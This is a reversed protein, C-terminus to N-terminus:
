ILKVSKNLKLDRSDLQNNHINVEVLNNLNEFLEYSLSTLCNDNLYIHTLSDLEKFLNNPINEFKNRSLFIRKLNILGTFQKAHITKLKNRSLDISILNVLGTFMSPNISKLNNNCLKIDTLNKLRSFMNCADMHHINNEYIHLLRLNDLDQLMQSDFQEFERSVKYMSLSKLSRLGSFLDPRIKTSNENLNIIHLNKNSFLNLYKESLTLEMLNSANINKEEFQADTPNEIMELVLSNCLITENTLRQRFDKSKSLFIINM